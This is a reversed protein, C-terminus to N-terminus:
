KVANRSGRVVDQINAIMSSRIMNKTPVNIIYSLIYQTVLVNDSEMQEYISIASAMKATKFMMVRGFNNQFQYTVKMEGSKIKQQDIEKFDKFNELLPDDIELFRLHLDFNPTLITGAVKYYEDFKSVEYKPMTEQLYDVSKLKEHSLKDLSIPLIYNMKIVAIHNEESIDWLKKTDLPFFVSLIDETNTSVFEAYHNKYSKDEQAKILSFFYQFNGQALHSLNIKYSLDKEVLAVPTARPTSM